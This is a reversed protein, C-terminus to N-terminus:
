FSLSKSPGGSGLSQSAASISKSVFQALKALTKSDAKNLEVYQTFGAEKQFDNLYSSLTSNQVNVGVLISVLSELAESTVAKQLSDHVGQRGFKSMNDDGDTLVVTIANCQFDNNMLSKAYATTADMTNIVADCLATGGGCHFVGNYDDLNIKDLLKFGHVEEMHDSFKVLRIMLNDARPSLQCARVVEKVCKELEDSFHMVSGSVDVALNVLSFETASLDDLRTGSFGYTGVNGFNEMNEDNLKPM